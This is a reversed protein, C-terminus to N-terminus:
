QRHLPLHWPATPTTNPTFSPHVLTDQLSHDRRFAPLPPSPFIHRTITDRHFYRFHRRIIKQVHISTPHYILVFSIRDSHKLSLPPSPPEMTVDIGKISM